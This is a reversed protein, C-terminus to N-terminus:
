LKQLLLGSANEPVLVAPGNSVLVFYGTDDLSHEVIAFPM